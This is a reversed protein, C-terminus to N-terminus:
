KKIIAMDEFAYDWYEGNYTAYGNNKCYKWCEELYGTYVIEGEIMVIYM